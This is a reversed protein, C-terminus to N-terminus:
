QGSEFFGPAQEDRRGDLGKVLVNERYELAGHRKWIEGSGNALKQYDDLQDKPIPLVFGDVYQAM